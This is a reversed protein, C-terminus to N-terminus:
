PGIVERIRKGVRRTRSGEEMSGTVDDWLSAQLAQRVKPVGSLRLCHPEDRCDAQAGSENAAPHTPLRHAILGLHVYREAARCAFGALSEEAPRPSLAGSGRVTPPM